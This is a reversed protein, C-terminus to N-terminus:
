DSPQIPLVGWLQLTAQIEAVSHKKTIVKFLKMAEPDILKLDAETGQEYTELVLYAKALYTKLASYPNNLDEAVTTEFSGKTGKRMVYITHSMGDPSFVAPVIEEISKPVTEGDFALRLIDRAYLNVGLRHVKKERPKKGTQPPEEPLAPPIVKKDKHRKTVPRKGTSKVPLLISALDAILYLAKLAEDYQQGKAQLQEVLRKQARVRRLSTRVAAVVESMVDRGQAFQQLASDLESELNQVNSLDFKKRPM